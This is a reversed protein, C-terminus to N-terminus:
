TTSGSRADRGPRLVVEEAQRLVLGPPRHRGARAALRQLQRVVRDARLRPRQDPAPDHRAPLAAEIEGVGDDLKKWFDVYGARIASLDRGKAERHTPEWAHWLEHQIRDTAMLDFMFLDWPCRKM